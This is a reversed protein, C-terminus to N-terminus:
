KCGPQTRLIQRPPVEHTDEPFSHSHQAWNITQNALAETITVDCLFQIKRFGADLGTSGPYQMEQSERVPVLQDSVSCNRHCHSHQVSHPVGPAAPYSRSLIAVCNM